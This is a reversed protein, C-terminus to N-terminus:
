HFMYHIPIKQIFEVWIRWLNNDIYLFCDDDSNLKIFLNKGSTYTFQAHAEFTFRHNHLLGENGGLRNDIPFFHETKFSYVDNDKELYISHPVGQTNDSYWQDFQEKGTTTTSGNGNYVPKKDPGLTDMVIAKDIGKKTDDSFDPHDKSFDRIIGTLIIADSMQNKIQKKIKDQNPSYKYSCFALNLSKSQCRMTCFFM